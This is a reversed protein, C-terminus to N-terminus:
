NLGQGITHIREARAGKRQHVTKIGVKCVTELIFSVIMKSAFMNINKFTSKNLLRRVNSGSNTERFQNSALIVTQGKSNGRFTFGGNNSAHTLTFELPHAHPQKKGGEKKKKFFQNLFFFGFLCFIFCFM